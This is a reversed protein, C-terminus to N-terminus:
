RDSGETLTGYWAHASRDFLSYTNARTDLRPKRSTINVRRMESRSRAYEAVRLAEAHNDCPLIVRNAKGESHGWYSMFTDTGTVYYPAPPIDRQSTILKSVPRRRM